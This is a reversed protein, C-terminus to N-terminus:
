LIFKKLYRNKNTTLIIYYAGSSISEPIQIYDNNNFDTSFVTRGSVDYINLTLSTEDEKDNIVQIVRNNVIINVSDDLRENIDLYENPKYKFIENNYNRIFDIGDQRLFSNDVGYVYQDYWIRDCNSMDYIVGLDNALLLVKIFEEKNYLMAIGENSGILTTDNNWEERCDKLLAKSRLDFLKFVGQTKYTIM